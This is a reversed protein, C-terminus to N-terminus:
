PEPVKTYFGCDIWYVYAGTPLTEWYGHCNKQSTSSESMSFKYSLPSSTLNNIQINWVGAKAYDSKWNLVTSPSSKYPTGRGIPKNSYLEELQDPSYVNMGLRDRIGEVNTELYLDIIRYFQSSTKYWVSKGPDLIQWTGTIDMATDPKDGKLTVPAVTPAPKVAAAVAVQKVKICAPPIADLTGWNQIAELANAPCDSGDQASAISVGVFVTLIVLVMGVFVKKM